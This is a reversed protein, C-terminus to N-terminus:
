RNYLISLISACDIMKESQTEDERIGVFVVEPRKEEPQIDQREAGSREPIPQQARLQRRLRIVEKRWLRSWRGDSGPPRPLYTIENKPRRTETRETKRHNNSHTVPTM